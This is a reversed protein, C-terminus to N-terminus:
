RWKYLVSFCMYIEGNRVHASRLMQWGEVARYEFCLRIYAHSWEVYGRTAYTQSNLNNTLGSMFSISIPAYNWKNTEPLGGIAIEADGNPSGDHNAKIGGQVFILDGLYTASGWSDLITWYASPQTLSFFYPSFSVQRTVAVPYGSYLLDGTTNDTKINYGNINVEGGIDLAGHAHFKGIGVGDKEINILCSAAGVKNTTTASYYNDWIIVSINYADTVSINPIIHVITGSANSLWASQVYTAWVAPETAKQYKVTYERYANSLSTTYYDAYFAVYTGENQPNGNVDCRYINTIAVSPKQYPVVYISATKTATRGRSDTITATYTVNGSTTFVNSTGSSSGTSLGHGSISYSTITSGYSGTAGSITAVVYSVSQVYSGDNHLNRGSLSLSTFTPQMDGTVWLTFTKTSTGIHTGGSYTELTLTGVGSLSSPIQNGLDRSPTWSAYEGLDTGITESASGFTYKLTHTFSSSARYITITGATGMVFDGGPFSFSSARPITPLTISQSITGSKPTGKNLNANAGQTYTTEFSVNLTFTKTGDADHNIVKTYSSATYTKGWSGFNHYASHYDVGDVKFYMSIAYGLDSGTSVKPTITLTTTNNEISQTYTVDASFTYGIKNGLVNYVTGSYTAM